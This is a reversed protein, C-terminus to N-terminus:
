FQIILEHDCKKETPYKEKKHHMKRNRGDAAPVSVKKRENSRYDEGNLM